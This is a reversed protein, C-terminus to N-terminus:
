QPIKGEEQLKLIAERAQLLHEYFGGMEIGKSKLVNLHGKVFLQVDSILISKHLRLQKPLKVSNFFAELEAITPTAETSM